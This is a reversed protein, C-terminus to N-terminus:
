LAAGCHKCHKADPDHGEGACQPCAQTSVAGAEARSMESAVIGTPVAIVAFGLLMIVTAFFVAIKRRSARLARAMIEAENLFLALKLVRFIRLM